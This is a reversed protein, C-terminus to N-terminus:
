PCNFFVSVLVVQNEGTCLKLRLYEVVSQCDLVRCRNIFSALMERPPAAKVGGPATIEDVLRREQETSVEELDHNDNQPEEILTPNQRPVHITEPSSDPGDDWGGGAKGTM